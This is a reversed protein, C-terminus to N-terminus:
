IGKILRDRYFSDVSGSYLSRETEIDYEASNFHYIENRLDVYAYQARPNHNRPQGVSGPNIFVTRKNNRYDANDDEYFYEMLHPIHSHGSIVYDYQKYRVDNIKSSNLKGWFHDNIDGHVFLCKKGEIIRECCGESDLSKIYQVHEESVISRTYNLIQKGRETSFHVTDGDLLAKEHNGFINCVIDYKSTLDELIGIVENPRMGYNICDGLLALFKEDPYRKKVDMLVAILASLNAHIDSLIIM